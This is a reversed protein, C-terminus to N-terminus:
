KKPIGYIYHDHQLSLDTIGTEIAIDDVELLAKGKKRKKTQLFFEKKLFHILKLVKEQMEVPLEEIEKKIFESQIAMILGEKKGM